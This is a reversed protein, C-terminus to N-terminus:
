RMMRSHHWTVDYPGGHSFVVAAVIAYVIVFLLLLGGFLWLSIQGLRRVRDSSDQAAKPDGSAWRPYVEFAHTFAAFALPWFFILSAVAWGANSPPRPPYAPASGPSPPTPEPPPTAAPETPTSM